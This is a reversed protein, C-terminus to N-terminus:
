RPTIWTSPVTGRALTPWRPSVTGEHGTHDFRRRTLLYCPQLSHPQRTFAFCGVATIETPVEATPLTVVSPSTHLHRISCGDAFGWTMPERTGNCVPAPLPTPAHRNRSSAQSLLPWHVSGDLTQGLDRKSVWPGAVQNAPQVRSWAPPVADTSPPAM